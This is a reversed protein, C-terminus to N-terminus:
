VSHLFSFFMLDIFLINPMGLMKNVTSRSSRWVISRRELPERVTDEDEKDDQKSETEAREREAGLALLTALQQIGELGVRETVAFIEPHVLGELGEVRKGVEQSLRLLLDFSTVFSPLTENRVASTSQFTPNGRFAVWVNDDAVAVLTQPYSQQPDQCFPLLVFEKFNHWTRLDGELFRQIEDHSSYYVARQVFCHDDERTLDLRHTALKSPCCLRRDSPNQQPKVSNHSSRVQLIHM